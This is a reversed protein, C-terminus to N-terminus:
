KTDEDQDIEQKHDILPVFPQQSHKAPHACYDGTAQIETVSPPRRNSTLQQDPRTTHM